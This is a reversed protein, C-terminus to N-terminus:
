QWVRWLRSLCSETGKWLDKSVNARRVDDPGVFSYSVCRAHRFSFAEVICILHLIGFELLSAIM